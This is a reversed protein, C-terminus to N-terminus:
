PAIAILKSRTRFYLTGESIAPTAMVIEDLSNVSLLEFRPGARVVYVDGVESSFYLKGDAAVPSASFGGAGRGLREQYLRKGTKAQYCSLVGNDRCSYLYDGYVLPTQMYAGGRKISWVVADNSTAGEALTIDGTSDLRIAYIPSLSGHANTIFVMGHATVPTPVPIDGGGRLRWIEKGTEADYGGIHKWGNVLLITYQNDSYITPTCWTPVDHRATRWVEEGNRIDFAAVFSGKQVDCQVFVKNDFIVPSSAFGWQAGPAVFFGSDLVGLDKSWLLKGAFDYCYMGESGFLAVIHKGDTAPTPNAHTSKPHRKIKPVGEHALQSWLIKGSSKDIRYVIWHHVSNDEVPRVDGYLGVRLTKDDEGISTTLFVSDGWVIPSSHALGPIETAWLIGESKGLDWTTPTPYGEAVGIAHPGRFSPWNSGEHDRVSAVASM